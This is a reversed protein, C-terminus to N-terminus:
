EFATLEDRLLYQRFKRVGTELRRLIGEKGAFICM